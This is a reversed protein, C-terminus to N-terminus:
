DAVVRANIEVPGAFMKTCRRKTQVRYQRPPYPCDVCASRELAEVGSAAQSMVEIYAEADVIPGFGARVIPHDDAILVRISPDNAASPLLIHARVRIGEGPESEISLTRCGRPASACASCASAPPTSTSLSPPPWPTTSAKATSRPLGPRLPSSRPTSCRTLRTAPPRIGHCARAM